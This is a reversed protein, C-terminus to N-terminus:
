LSFKIILKTSQFDFESNIREPLNIKKVRNDIKDLQVSEKSKSASAQSPKKGKIELIISGDESQIMKIKM